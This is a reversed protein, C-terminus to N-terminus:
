RETWPQAPPIANPSDEPPAPAVVATAGDIALVLVTADAAIEQGAEDTRASWTEGALKVTGGTHTVVSLTRARQGPLAHVNTPVFPASRHAWRKVAPRVALLLVTSTTAFTIVQWTLSAGFAAAVSAALAGGAIMAFVFDLSALELLGVVLAGGIWVLWMADKM